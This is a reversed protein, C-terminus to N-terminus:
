AGRGRGSRERLKRIALILSRQMRRISNILVGIEDKRSMEIKANLQGTSIRDAVRALHLIPRTITRAMLLALILVVGGTAAIILYFVRLHERVLTSVAGELEDMPQSFEDLYTTAAVGMQVDDATRSQVTAIHMFKRRKRGDADIWDYYGSAEKGGLSAEMIAWFQPLKRSLKHLDTDVIDPNKHFLNVATHADQVATYGTKGVPQVALAQFRENQQLAKVTMGPHSRIYVDLQGAVDEAKNAIVETGLAELGARGEKVLLRSMSIMDTYAVYVIIGMPVISICLSVLLLKPFIGIKIRKAM